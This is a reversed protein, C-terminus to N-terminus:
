AHLTARMSPASAAKGLYTTIGLMEETTRLLAYHDVRETVVTGPKVSPTIAVFPMPSDEDWVLFIATRGAAYSPSDLLDNVVGTLWQDGTAVSCDHTDNCLDPTVFAFTPLTGGKLADGFAPAFPVDDTICAARDNGGAYYAAPNHKVAYTSRGGLVCNAPMADQYSIATSGAARVQRFLNDVTLHHASPGADDTIGWTDGSTAGLYNPLSPSGVSRYDTATACKAALNTVFPAEPKGVVQAVSHNEMWIWIVHDYKAPPEALTGCPRDKSPFEPITTTTEAPTTVSTTPAIADAPLTTPTTAAELPASTPAPGTTSKSCATAVLLLVVAIRRM